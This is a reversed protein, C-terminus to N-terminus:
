DAPASNSSRCCDQIRRRPPAIALAPWTNMTQHLRWSILWRKDTLIAARKFKKMLGPMSPLQAFQIRVASLTPLQYDIVDDLKGSMEIEVRDKATREIRFM